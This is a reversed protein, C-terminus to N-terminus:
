AVFRGGLFTYLLVALLAVSLALWVARLRRDRGLLALVVFAPFLVLVYRATAMLPSFNTRTGILLLQPAAYLAYSPPLRRLGLVLLLCFLLFLALNLAEIADGRARAYRWSLAVVAWPARLTFRWTQQALFPTAGTTASTYAAFLALGALPALPALLSVLRRRGAGDARWRCAVEWALPLALLAGQTRTLGALLAALAAWGWAGRRAGYLAWVALALFLAETFPAFLFFATPFLSLALVTRRATPRDFDREVLRSLGVVAAVYAAGSVALGGLTLSGALPLSAARMLLPYLPFFAEASEGPEYGYSAIKQYWCADWRQWVGLTKFALGEAHLPPVTRWGNNALEFACPGPLSRLSALAFAGLSYAVRLGAFLALAAVLSSRRAVFRALSPRVALGGLAGLGGLDSEREWEEARTTGETVKLGQNGPSRPARPPKATGDGRPGRDGRGGIGEGLRALPPALALALLAGLLALPRSAGEHALYLAESRAVLAYLAFLGLAAALSAAAIRVGAGLLRLAGYAVALLALNPLLLEPRWPPLGRTPEVTVRALAVGLPRPDGPPVYPETTLAVNLLRLNLSTWGRPGLRHAFAYERLASGLAADGAAEGNITVAVSRPAAVAPSDQMALVVRYEAPVLVPIDLAARPKSWRYAFAENREPGYFDALVVGPPEEGLAFSLRTPPAGAAYVLVAVLAVGLALLALLDATVLRSDPTPLRFLRRPRSGHRTKKRRERGLERSGVGSERSQRM